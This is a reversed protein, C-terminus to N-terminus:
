KGVTGDQEVVVGDEFLHSVANAFGGGTAYSWTLRTKEGESKRSYPEGIIAIVEAETMGPHILDPDEWNFRTEACAAIIAIGLILISKKISNTELNSVLLNLGPIM